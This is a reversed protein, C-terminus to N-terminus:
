TMLLHLYLGLFDVYDFYVSACIDFMINLHVFMIILDVFMIILGV